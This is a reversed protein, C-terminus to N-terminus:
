TCTKMDERWSSWLNDGKASIRHTNTNTRVLQIKTRVYEGSITNIKGQTFCKSAMHYSVSTQKKPPNHITKHDGLDKFKLAKLQILLPNTSERHTTENVIITATKKLTHVNTRNTKYTGGCKWVTPLKQLISSCYLTYLSLRQTKIVNCNIKINKQVTHPKWSPKGVILVGLFHETIWEKFQLTMESFSPIIKQGIEM